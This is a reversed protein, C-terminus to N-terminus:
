RGECLRKLVRPGEMLMWLERTTIEILKQERMSPWTYREYEQRKFYLAFGDGQWQLISLQTRQMNCYVFVDGEMLRSQYELPILSAFHDMKGGFSYLGTLMYIRKPRLKEGKRAGHVPLIEYIKESIERIEREECLIAESAEEEIEYTVETEAEERAVARYENWYRYRCRDSCYKKPKRGREQEIEEGCNKCRVKM